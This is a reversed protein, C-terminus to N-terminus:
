PQRRGSLTAITRRQQTCVYRPVLYLVSSSLLTTTGHQSGGTHVGARMGVAFYAGSREWYSSILFICVVVDVLSPVVVVVM